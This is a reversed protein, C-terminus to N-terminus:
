FLISITRPLVPQALVVTRRAIKWDGGASRRLRDERRGVFLSEHSEHRGPRGQFVIFSSRVDFEGDIDTAEVDVNGILHQTISPPLEAYAMGTDLRDVRTQLARRDDDFLNFSPEDQVVDNKQGQVSERVPMLYRIDDTLLDLWEHLRNEDLLRAEWTLFRAVELYLEASVAQRVPTSQM